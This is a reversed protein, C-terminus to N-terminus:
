SRAKKSHARLLIWCVGLSLLLAAVLHSEWLAPEPLPDVRTLSVVWRVNLVSVVLGLGIAGGEIVLSHTAGKTLGRLGVLLLGVVVGPVLITILSRFFRFLSGYNSATLHYVQGQYRIHYDGRESSSYDTLYTFESPPDSVTVLTYSDDGIAQRVVAQTEPSLSEFSYTEVPQSAESHSVTTDPQARFGYANAQGDVAAAGVSTLLVLVGCALVLRSRSPAM